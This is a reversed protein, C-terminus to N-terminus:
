RPFLSLCPILTKPGQWLAEYTFLMAATNGTAREKLYLYVLIFSLIMQVGMGIASVLRSQKLDKTLVIGVVTLIPIIIFLNLINM